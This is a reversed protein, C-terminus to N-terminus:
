GPERRWRKQWRHMGRAALWSSWRLVTSADRPRILGARLLRRGGAVVLCAASFCVRVEFACWDDHLRNTAPAPPQPLFGCLVAPLDDRQRLCLLTSARCWAEVPAVAARGDADDWAAKPETSFHSLGSFALM